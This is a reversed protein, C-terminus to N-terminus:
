TSEMDLLYPFAKSIEEYVEEVSILQMCKNDGNCMSTKANYVNLCPSCYIDKCFVINRDGVPGYRVPTEPGFLSVTPVQIANALHLPGSDCTILMESRMFLVVLEKLNVEGTLDIVRGKDSKIQSIVSRVYKKESESGIFVLFVKDMHALLEESLEVFKGEPWKRDTSLESSNVNICIFKDNQKLAIDYNSFIEGVPRVSQFNADIITKKIDSEGIDLPGLIAAFGRTIHKFHNFYVQHTLFDGRWVKRLYYGIRVKAGSFLLLIITFRSFFELDFALDIRVKNLRVLAKIIDLTFLFISSKRIYVNLDSVNLIECIEKNSSFTMFYINADPYKDKVAKLVPSALIISGMGFFKVFLINEIKLNKLSDKKNFVKLSLVGYIKIVITLTFCLMGGVYDDIWRMTNIKM